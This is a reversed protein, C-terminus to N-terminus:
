LEIVVPISVGEPPQLLWLRRGQTDRVVSRALNHAEKNSLRNEYCFVLNQFSTTSAKIEDVIHAYAGMTGQELNAVVNRCDSAVLVKQAGIDRVLDVAERCAM